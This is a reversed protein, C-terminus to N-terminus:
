YTADLVADSAIMVVAGAVIGLLLPGNGDESHRRAEPFLENLAVTVMVGAVFALVSETNFLASQDNIDFVNLM